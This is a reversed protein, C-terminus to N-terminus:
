MYASVAKCTPHSSKQLQSVALCWIYATVTVAVLVWVNFSIMDCGWSVQMQHEVADLAAPPFVGGWMRYVRLAKDRLQACLWVSMFVQLTHTSLCSPRCSPELM